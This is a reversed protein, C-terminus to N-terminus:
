NIKEYYISKIIHKDQIRNILYGTPFLSTSFYFNSDPLSDYDMKELINLNIKGQNTDFNYIIYDINKEDLYIMNIEWFDNDTKFTLKTDIKTFEIIDNIGIWLIKSILDIKNKILYISFLQPKNSNLVINFKFNGKFFKAIFFNKAISKVYKCNCHNDKMYFVNQISPLNTNKNELDFKFCSFCIRRQLCLCFIEKKEECFCCKSTNCISCIFKCNKNTLANCITCVTICNTCYKKTNECFNCPCPCLENVNKPLKCNSCFYFQNFKSLELASLNLNNISKAIELIQTHFNLKSKFDSIFKFITIELKNLRNEINIEGISKIQTSLSNQSFSEKLNHNQFPKNNDKDTNECNIKNISVYNFSRNINTNSNKMQNNKVNEKWSYETNDKNISDSNLANFCNHTILNPYTIIESCNICKINLNRFFEYFNKSENELNNRCYSCAKINLESICNECFSLNCFKCFFTNISIFKCLCCKILKEHQSFDKLNQIESISFKRSTKSFLKSDM